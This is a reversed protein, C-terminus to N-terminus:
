DDPSVNKRRSPAVRTGPVRRPAAPLTEGGWMGQVLPVGKSDFGAGYGLPDHDVGHCTLFCAGSGFGLGEYGLMGSSSATVGTIVTAENFRILAPASTAGHPDHCFGCPIRGDVVHKEHLPFADLELVVRRDHCAYCLAYASESEPQGEQRNM